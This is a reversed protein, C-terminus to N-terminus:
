MLKIAQIKEEEGRGVAIRKPNCILICERCRNVGDQPHELVSGNEEVRRKRESIRGVEEKAWIVAEEAVLEGEEDAVGVDVVDDVEVDAVGGRFGVCSLGAGEDGATSGVVVVM